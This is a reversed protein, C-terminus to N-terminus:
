ANEEGENMTKRLMRRARFLRSKATGTPVGQIEALDTVSLEELYFLTLVEREILPLQALGDALLMIRTEADHAPDPEPEDAVAALMAAEAYRSRLRDMAVNHAIGFLWARLRSGDRLRTIGRFAKIWVEQALDDAVDHGATRQLHRLLRASWEHVLEGFAAPEGLQCRVVLLEDQNQKLPDDLGNM